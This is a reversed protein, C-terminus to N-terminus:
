PRIFPAACAKLLESFVRCNGADPCLQIKQSALVLVQATDLLKPGNFSFTLGEQDEEENPFAYFIGIPDSAPQPPILGADLIM